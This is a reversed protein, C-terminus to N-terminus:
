IESVRVNMKVTDTQDCKNNMTIGGAGLFLAEFFLYKWIVGCNFTALEKKSIPTYVRNSRTYASANTSMVQHPRALDRDNEDAESSLSDCVCPTELGRDSAPWM